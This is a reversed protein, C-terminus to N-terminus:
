RSVQTLMMMMLLLKVEIMIVVANVLFVVRLGSVLLKNCLFFHKLKQGGVLLM